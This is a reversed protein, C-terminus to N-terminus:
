SDRRRAQAGEERTSVKVKGRSDEEELLGAGKSLSSGLQAAPGEPSKATHSLKDRLQKLKGPSLQPSRPSRPSSLVV